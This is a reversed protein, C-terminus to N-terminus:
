AKLERKIENLFRWDTGKAIIQQPSSKIMDLEHLRLAYFRLTDEADYERWAGFPNETLTQLARDYRETFGREVLLRAALEPEGACIDAAKLVARIVRKTAVPHRAAYERNAALMCCFYQSWPRDAATRLIVHGVKRAHLEQAQPPATLYADLKGEAFLELPKAALDDVLNLDRRPDLGVYAAILSLWRTDLSGVRKGKLEALGRIDGHAFLEYCGAHVGAVVTIPLGRDIAIVHDVQVNSQFDLKGRGLDEMETQFTSDVYRVDTFGEARLLGECVYQPAFCLSLPVKGFRVTTTELAPEAARARRPPLIGASGALATMGGLFRRRTQILAM